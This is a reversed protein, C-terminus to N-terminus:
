CSFLGRSYILHYEETHTGRMCDLRFLVFHGVLGWTLPLWLQGKLDFITAKMKRWNWISIKARRPNGTKLGYSRKYTEQSKSSLVCLQHSCPIWIYGPLLLLASLTRSLPWFNIMARQKWTGQWRGSRGPTQLVGSVSLDPLQVDRPQSM